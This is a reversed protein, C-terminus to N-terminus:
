GNWSVLVNEDSAGEGIDVVHGMKAVYNSTYETGIDEGPVHLVICQTCTRTNGFDDNNVKESIFNKTFSNQTFQNNQLGLQAFSNYM